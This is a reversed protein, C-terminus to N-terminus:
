SNMSLLDCAFDGITHMALREASMAREVTIAVAPRSAAQSGPTSGLARRGFYRRDRRPVLPPLTRSHLLHPRPPRQGDLLPSLIYRFHRISCRHRKPCHEQPSSRKPPRVDVPHQSCGSSTWRRWSRVGTNGAPIGAAWDVRVEERAAVQVVEAEAAVQMAEADGEWAAVRTAGSGTAATGVAARAVAAVAVKGM